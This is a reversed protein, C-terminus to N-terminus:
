GNTVVDEAGRQPHVHSHVTGRLEVNFQSIVDVFVFPLAELVVRAGHLVHGLRKLLEVVDGHELREVHAAACGVQEQEQQADELKQVKLGLHTDHGPGDGFRHAVQEMEKRQESNDEAQVDNHAVDHEARCHLNERGHLSRGHGREVHQQSLEPVGVVVDERIEDVVPHQHNRRDDEEVGEHEDDKQHNEVEQQGDNHVGERVDLALVLVAAAHKLFEHNEGM